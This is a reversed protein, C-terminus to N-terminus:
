QRRGDVVAAARRRVGRGVGGGGERRFAAAIVAVGFCCSSAAMATATSKPKKASALTKLKRMVVNLTYRSEPRDASHVLRRWGRGERKGAEAEAAARGEDRRRARTHVM